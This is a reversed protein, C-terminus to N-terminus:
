REQEAERLSAQLHWYPHRFVDDVYSLFRAKEWIGTQQATTELETQVNV